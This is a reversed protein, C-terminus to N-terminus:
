RPSPCTRAGRLTTSDAPSTPISRTRAPTAGRGTVVTMGSRSRRPSRWTSAAPAPSPPPWRLWRSRMPSGHGSTTRPSSSSRPRGRWAGSPPPTSSGTATASSAPGGSTPSSTAPVTVQGAARTAGPALLSRELEEREERGWAHRPPSAPRPTLTRSRLPHPGPFRLPGTAGARRLRGHDLGLPHEARQPGVATRGGHGGTQGTGTVDM